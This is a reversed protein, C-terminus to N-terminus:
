GLWLTSKYWRGEHIREHKVKEHPRQFRKGCTGCEYPRTKLIEPDTEFKKGFKFPTHDPLSSMHSDLNEQTDFKRNCITCFVRQEEHSAIHLEKFSMDLSRQCIECFYREAEASSLVVGEPLVEDISRMPREIHAKRHLRLAGPSPFKSGCQECTLGSEELGDQFSQLDKDKKVLERKKPSTNFANHYQRHVVSHVSPDVSSGGVSFTIRKCKKSAPDYAFIFFDDLTKPGHEAKNHKDLHRQTTFPLFCMKCGFKNVADATDELFEVLMEEEDENEEKLPKLVVEAEAHYNRIHQDYDDFSQDCEECTYYYKEQTEEM